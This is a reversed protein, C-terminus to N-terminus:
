ARAQTQTDAIGHRHEVAVTALIEGADTPPRTVYASSTSEGRAFGCGLRGAVQGEHLRHELAVLHVVHDTIRDISPSRRDLRHTAFRRLERHRRDQAAGSSRHHRIARADAFCDCRATSGSIRVGSVNSM